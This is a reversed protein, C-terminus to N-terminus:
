PLWREIALELPIRGTRKAQELLEDVMWGCVRRIRARAKRPDFNEGQVSEMTGHITGGASAIWDPVFLVGAAHLARAVAIEEHLSDGRLQNNAGGCIARYHIGDTIESTLLGGVACPILLDADVDLAQYPAVVGVRRREDPTLASLLVDIRRHDQDTVTLKSGEKALFEAVPLGVTGLGQVTLHLEKLPAGLAAATARIAEMVGFATSVSTGGGLVGAVNDTRAALDLMDSASLGVDPGTITGSLDIEEILADLWLDRDYPPLPPNHLCLKSGGRGVEAALNKYTMARSLNLVDQIVEIEPVVLDHRRLGGAGPGAGTSHVACLFRLGIEERFVIDLREHGGKRFRAEIADLLPWADGLLDNAPEWAGNKPAALIRIESGNGKFRVREVGTDRMADLIGATAEM